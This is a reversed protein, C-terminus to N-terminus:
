GTSEANLHEIHWLADGGLARRLNVTRDIVLLQRCISHDVEFRFGHSFDIAFGGDAGM